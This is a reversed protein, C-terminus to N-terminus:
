AGAWRSCSGNEDGSVGVCVGLSLVLNLLDDGELTIANSGAVIAQIDEDEDHVDLSLWRSRTRIRDGRHYISDGSTRTMMVSFGLRHSDRGSPWIYNDKLAIM